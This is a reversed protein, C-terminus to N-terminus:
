KDGVRRLALGVAVAMQPAIHDLYEQDFVKPDAEINALPNFHAVPINTDKRFLSDLGPLRSSGGSLLIQSITEEPYTAYFFDIARKVETAWGTAASVFIAELDQVSVQDSALGLKVKEADEYELGFRQQIDETIQAGGISADRNFMSVGNKLVNINMKNAGIDVLAVGGSETVPYNAEYANELAFFDVDIVQPSLGSKKLLNTYDDIVEKKAAVLMVEMRDMKEPSSGLIQFDINVDEVNFPIYQEAEVKINAALEDENMQPLDVKKIIVSWGAISTAVGKVKVKLHGVLKKIADRVADQDKIAGEVIVNPPLLNMGLQKLRYTGKAQLLHVIKVSHSGIDLGILSTKKGLM